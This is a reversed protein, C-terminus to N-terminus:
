WERLVQMEDEKYQAQIRWNGFEQELALKSKQVRELEQELTSCRENLGNNEQKL